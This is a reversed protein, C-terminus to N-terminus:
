TSRCPRPAAGRLDPRLGAAQERREGARRDASTSAIPGSTRPAAPRGPRLGAGSGTAATATPTTATATSTGRAARSTTASAAGDGTSATTARRRAARPGGARRARAPRGARRTGRRRAPRRSARGTPRGRSARRCRGAPRAPARAAAVVEAHPPEVHQDARVRLGIVEAARVRTAACRQGDAATSSPRSPTRSRCPSSSAAAARSRPVGSTAPAPRAAGAAPRPPPAPARAAAARRRPRRPRRGSRGRRRGAADRPAPTRRSSSPRRPTPRARRPEVEPADIEQLDAVVAAGVGPERRQEGASRGRRATSRPPGRCCRRADSAASARPAGRRGPHGRQAGVAVAGDDDLRAVPPQVDM